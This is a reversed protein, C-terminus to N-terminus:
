LSHDSVDLECEGSQCYLQCALREKTINYVNGLLQTEAFDIKSLNEDGSRVRILCDRCTAHGGCSSKLDIGQEELADLVNEKSDIEVEKEIPWLKIKVKM